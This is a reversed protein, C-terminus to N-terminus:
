GLVSGVSEEPASNDDSILRRHLHMDINRGSMVIAAPGRPVFKDTLLAGIGVAGGGEVIEKEHWYAHSIAAAIEAEELLVIGDVLDHVMRFTWRNGLGIGGALSDALTASEAIEIPHGARQSAHMAAGRSMSIGIVEVKPNITKVALAIGAILGGGSLPVLVTSVEPFEEMLELGITGQGAIIDPHDFPSLETLGTETVLRDVESQADDQSQGVVHVDAGLGRIAEVKNSPVQHSICIACRVGLLRAAYALARGHNGTSAAVVGRKAVDEPLTLLANTAGRLKFSGTTQRQELKLKVTSGVRESLSPSEVLPTRRVRGAIRRQALFLDALTIHQGAM